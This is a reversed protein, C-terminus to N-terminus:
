NKEEEDETNADASIIGSAKYIGIIVQIFDTAQHGDALYNDFIDYADNATIGHNYQQLSAHLINVMETITPIRNGSGFIALPNCGIKQELSVINKTNLRLKYAKNGAEFDFYM